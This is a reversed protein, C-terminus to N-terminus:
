LQANPVRNILAAVLFTSSEVYTPIVIGVQHNHTFLSYRNRHRNAM